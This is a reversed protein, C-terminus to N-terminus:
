FDGSEQATKPTLGSREAGSRFGMEATGQVM